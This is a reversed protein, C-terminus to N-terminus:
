VNLLTQYLNLAQYILLGLNRNSLLQQYLQIQIRYGRAGSDSMIFIPNRDDAEFELRVVEQVEDKVDTWLKIVNQYRESETLKGKFLFDKIFIM